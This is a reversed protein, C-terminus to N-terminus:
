ADADIADHAPGGFGFLGDGHGVNMLFRAVDEAIGVNLAFQSKGEENTAVEETDEIDFAIPETEKRRLHDLHKGDEGSLGGDGEIVSSEMAGLASTHMLDLEDIQDRSRGGSRM